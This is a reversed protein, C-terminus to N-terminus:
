PQPRHTFRDALASQFDAWFCDEQIEDKFTVAVASKGGNNGPVIKGNHRECLDEITEAHDIFFEETLIIM